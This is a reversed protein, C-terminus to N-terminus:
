LKSPEDWDFVVNGAEEPHDHLWSYTEVMESWPFHHTIMTSAGVEGSALLESVAGASCQDSLLQLSRSAGEVDISRCPFSPTASSTKLRSPPDALLPSLLQHRM